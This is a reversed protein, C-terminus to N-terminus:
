SGPFLQRHSLHLLCPTLLAWCCSHFTGSFYASGLGAKRPLFLGAVTPPALAQLEPVIFPGGWGPQKQETGGLNSEGATM